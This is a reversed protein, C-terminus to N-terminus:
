RSEMEIVPSRMLGLLRNAADRWERRGPEVRQARGFEDFANWDLGWHQCTQARLQLVRTMDERRAALREAEDLDRQAELVTSVREYSSRTAARPVGRRSRREGISNMLASAYDAHIQWLDGRLARARRLYPLSLRYDDRKALAVGTAYATSADM